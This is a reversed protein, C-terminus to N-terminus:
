DGKASAEGAGEAAGEEGSAESQEDGDGDGDSEGAERLELVSGDFVFGKARQVEEALRERIQDAGEKTCGKLLPLCSVFDVVSIGSGCVRALGPFRTLTEGLARLDNYIESKQASVELRFGAAQLIADYKACLHEARYAGWLRRNRGYRETYAQHVALVSCAILMICRIRERGAEEIRNLLAARAEPSADIQRGILGPDIGAELGFDYAELSEPDLGGEGEGGGGAPGEALEDADDAGGEAREAEALAKRWREALEKGRPDPSGARSGDEEDSRADEDKPRTYANYLVRILKDSEWEKRRDRGAGWKSRAARRAPKSPGAGSGSGPGAGQASASASAAEPDPLEGAQAPAADQAAGAGAGRRRGGRKTAARKARSRSPGAAPGEEEKEEGEEEAAPGPGLRRGKGQAEQRGPGQRGRGAGRPWPPPRRRRRSPPPRPDTPRPPPEPALALARARGARRPGRPRPPAAAAPPPPARAEAAAAQFRELAYTLATRLCLDGSIWSAAFAADDIYALFSFLADIRSSCVLGSAAPHPDGCSPCTFLPPSAGGEASVSLLTLACSLCVFSGTSNFKLDDLAPRPHADLAENVSSAGTKALLRAAACSLLIPPLIRESKCRACAPRCSLLPDRGLSIFAPLSVKAPRSDLPPCGSAGGAAGRPSTVQAGSAPQSAM